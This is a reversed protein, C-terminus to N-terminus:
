LLGTSGTVAVESGLFVRYFGTFGLLVWYFGAMVMSFRGLDLLVLSWGVIVM